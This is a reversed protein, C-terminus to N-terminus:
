DDAADPDVFFALKSFQEHPLRMKAVVAREIQRIREPSVNYIRSIKQYTWCEGDIFGYRYLIIERDRPPLSELAGRVAEAMEEHEVGRTMEVEEAALLDSVVGGDDNVPADISGMQQTANLVDELKSIAGLMGQKRLRDLKAEERRSGSMRREEATLRGEAWEMCVRLLDAKMEDLTAPRGLEETLKPFRVSHIRRVRVWSPPLKIPHQRALVALMRDRVVKALYTPFSPGKTADYTAAAEVLALNAEGILDPLLKAAKEKGHREEAKERAILHLLRFNSGTLMEAAYNGRRVAQRLKREKSGSLRKTEELEIEAARGAQFQEVLENQAVPSLQPYQEMRRQWASLAPLADYAAGRERAKSLFNAIEADATPAAM